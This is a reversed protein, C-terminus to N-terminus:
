LYSFQNDTSHLLHASCDKCVAHAMPGERVELNLGHPYHTNLQQAWAQEGHTAIGCFPMLTQRHEGAGERVAVM